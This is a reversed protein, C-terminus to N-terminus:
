PVPEMPPIPTTDQSAILAALRESDLQAKIESIEGLRASRDGRMLTFIENGSYGDNLMKRIVKEQKEDLPRHKTIDRQQPQYPPVPVAPVTTRVPVKRPRQQQKKVYDRLSQRRRTHTATLEPVVIRRQVLYLLGIFVSFVGFLIVTTTITQVATM